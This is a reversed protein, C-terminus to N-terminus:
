VVMRGKRGHRLMARWPTKWPPVRETADTKMARRHRNEHQPWSPAHGEMPRGRPVAARCPGERPPVRETAGAKPDAM